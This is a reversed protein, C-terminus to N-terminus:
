TLAFYLRWFLDYGTTKQLARIENEAERIISNFTKADHVPRDRRLTRFLRAGELKGRAYALFRGHRVALTGWLVQAVLVPWGYRVIWSDPFNRAILIMQNRALLRVTDYSWQGYTASGRHRGRAEPLYVGGVGRMACRIGFDVDELYSEYCDALMGVQQFVSARFLAATLPAFRIPRGQNWEAGDSRGQGCRWPCAGRCIEDWTGDIVGARNADLMKGTAFGYHSAALSGCLRELWEPELEVDNNIVAILDGKAAAIGANVARAFGVNSPMAIVQAGAARAIDASEDSSGNDVVIIEEPPRTQRRLSDLATALLAARNWTPIVATIKDGTM